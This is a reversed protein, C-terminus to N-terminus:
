DNVDPLMFRPPSLLDVPAYTDKCFKPQKLGDMRELASAVQRQLEVPPAASLEAFVEDRIDVILPRDEPEQAWCRTVVDQLLEIIKLKDHANERVFGQKTEDVSSMSPRGGAVIFELFERRDLKFLEPRERVLVCYGTMAYSYVDMAKTTKLQFNQLREPSAFKATYETGRPRTATDQLDTCTALEAGGFDSIKCRLDGTLLVNQPKIDNHAIRQDPRRNHLYTLGAAIDAFVRLKLHCFRASDFHVLRELSGGPLYEILLGVANQHWHTAGYVQVVNPHSAVRMLECENM